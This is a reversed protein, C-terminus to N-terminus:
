GGKRNLRLIGIGNGLTPACSIRSAQILSDEAAKSTAQDQSVTALIGAAFRRWAALDTAPPTSGDGRARFHRDMAHSVHGIMLPCASAESVDLVLESFVRASAACSNGQRWRKAELWAILRWVRLIFSDPELRAAEEITPQISNQWKQTDKNAQNVAILARWFLRDAWLGNPINTKFDLEELIISARSFDGFLLATLVKQNMLVNTQVVSLKETALATNLFDLALDLDDAVTAAIVLKRTQAQWQDPLVFSGRMLATDAFQVNTKGCGQKIQDSVRSGSIIPAPPPLPPRWILGAPEWGATYAPFAIFLTCIILGLRKM